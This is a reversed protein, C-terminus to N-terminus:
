KLPKGERVYTLFKYGIGTKSIKQESMILTKWEHIPITPGYTDVENETNVQTHHIVDAYPMAENYVKEGGIVWVRQDGPFLDKLEDFSRCQILGEPFPDNKPGLAITNARSTLVVNIRNPLPRVSAPLSEYTKIGMVVPKNSTIKKFHQLDEPIHWPIGGEFGIGNNMDSAFIIGVKM